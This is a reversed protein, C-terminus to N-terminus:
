KLNYMYWTSCGVVLWLMDHDNQHDNQRGPIQQHAHFIYMFFNDLRYITEYYNKYFIKLGFSLIIEEKEM